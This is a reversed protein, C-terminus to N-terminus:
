WLKLPKSNGGSELVFLRQRVQELWVTEGLNEFFQASLKYDGIAEQLNGCALELEAKEAYYLGQQRVPKSVIFVRRAQKLYERASDFDELNRCIFVMNVEENIDCGIDSSDVLSLAQKLYEKAEVLSNKAEVSKQSPMAEFRILIICALNNLAASLGWTWRAESWAKVAACHHNYSEELLGQRQAALGPHLRLKPM